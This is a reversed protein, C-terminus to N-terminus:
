RLFRSWVFIQPFGARFFIMYESPNFKVQWFCLFLYGGVVLALLLSSAVVGWVLVGFYQAVWGLNGNKKYSFLPDHLTPLSGCRLRLTNKVNAPVYIMAIFM